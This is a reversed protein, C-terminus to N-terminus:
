STGLLAIAPGPPLLLLVPVAVLQVPSAWYAGITFRVKQGIVAVALLLLVTRPDVSGRPFAVAIAIAAAVLALAFSGQVAREPGALPQARRMPADRVLAEVRPDDEAVSM